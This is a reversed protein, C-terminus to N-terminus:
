LASVWRFGDCRISALVRRYVSPTTDFPVSPATSMGGDPGFFGAPAAGPAAPPAATPAGGNFSLRRVGQMEGRAARDRFLSLSHATASDIPALRSIELNSQLETLRHQAGSGPQPQEKSGLLLSQDWMEKGNSRSEFRETGNKDGVSAIFGVDVALSVSDAPTKPPFDKLAGSAPIDQKFWIRM